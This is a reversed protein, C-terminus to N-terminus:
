GGSDVEAIQNITHHHHIRQLLGLYRKLRNLMVRYMNHVLVNGNTSEKPATIAIKLPIINLASFIAPCPNSGDEEETNDKYWRNSVKTPMKNVTEGICKRPKM